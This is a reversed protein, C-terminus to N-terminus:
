PLLWERMNSRAKGDPRTGSLHMKCPLLYLLSIYLAYFTLRYICLWWFM